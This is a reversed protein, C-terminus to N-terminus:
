IIMRLSALEKCSTGDNFLTESTKNYVYEFAYMGEESIFNSFGRVEFISASTFMSLAVYVENHPTTQDINVEIEGMQGTYDCDGTEKRYTFVLNDNKKLSANIEGELSATPGDSNPRLTGIVADTNGLHVYIVDSSKWSAVLYNKGDRDEIDLAKTPLDDTGKSAKVCLKYKPTGIELDEPTDLEAKSCGSYLVALASFLILTLLKKM